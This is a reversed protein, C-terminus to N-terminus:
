ALLESEVAKRFTRSVPPEVGTHLTLILKGNEKRSTGIGRKAVWWSRHTQAGPYDALEKIADSLRMLILEDGFNTHVRLYHDEASVAYLNATHYKAPLRALFQEPASAADETEPTLKAHLARWAMAASLIISIVLVYSYAILISVVTRIPELLMLVLTVPVSILSAIVLIKVWVPKEACWRDWVIPQIFISAIAGTGVAAIWYLLRWGFPIHGTNYVSMWSFLLSWGLIIAIFKLGQVARGM